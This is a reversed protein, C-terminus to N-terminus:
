ASRSHTGNPTSEKGSNCIAVRQYVAVYSHFSGGNEIPLDVIEVPGHEIAIKVYGSPVYNNWQSTQNGHEVFQPSTFSKLDQSRLQQNTTSRGLLLRFKLCVRIIEKM